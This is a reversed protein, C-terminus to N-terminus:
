EGSDKSHGNLYATVAEKALEKDAKEPILPMGNAGTQETRASFEDKLRREAYWRSTDIDGATIKDAINKRARYKIMDKLGEKRELFEPFEVQYNYLTSKGIGAYFCAELDSAGNAFAEELKAITEPTMITPRGTDM